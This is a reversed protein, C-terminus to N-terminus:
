IAATKEDGKLSAIEQNATNKEAKLEESGKLLKRREEDVELLRDIDVEIRKKRAGEQVLAPYERIFKINLM